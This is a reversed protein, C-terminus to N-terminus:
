KTARIALFLTEDKVSPGGIPVFKGPPAVYNVSGLETDRDVRRGKDDTIQERKLLTYAVELKGDPRAAKYAAKLHYVDILHVVATAALDVRAKPRAHLRFRNFLKGFQKEILDAVEELQADRHAIKGHSAMIVYAEVEISKPAERPPEAQGRAAAALLAAAVVAIVAAAALSTTATRANM